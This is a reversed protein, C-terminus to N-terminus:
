APRWVKPGAGSMMDQLSWLEIRWPVLKLAGFERESPGKPWFLAPDYGYPAPTDRFLAWARDKEAQADAWEARCEAYVQQHQQDWYSVSVYPNKELHKAKFSHRGTAIWGTNGDWVPHLIRARPRSQNDVTVVTAWVIRRVRADFEASIEEWPVPM